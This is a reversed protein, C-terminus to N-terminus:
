ILKSNEEKCRVGPYPHSPPTPSHPLALVIKNQFVRRKSIHSLCILSSIAIFGEQITHTDYKLCDIKYGM